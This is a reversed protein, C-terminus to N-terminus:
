NRKEGEWYKKLYLMSYNYGSRRQNGPSQIIGKYFDHYQNFSLGTGLCM